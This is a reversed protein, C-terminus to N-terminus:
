EMSEIMAKIMLPPVSNGIITTALGTKVPLVYWDPFSQFRALCRPTMAVVRGKNLWARFPHKEQSAIITPVVEEEYKICLDGAYNLPKGDIIFARSDLSRHSSIVTPSPEESSSITLHSDQQVLFARYKGASHNETITPAPKEEPLLGSNEGNVPMLFARHVRGGGATKLTFCPDEKELITPCREGAADGEVLFAKIHGMSTTDVTFAPEVKECYKRGNSGPFASNVYISDLLNEPLRKLQWDAFKSEPLTPILDEIAEYWGIKRVSKTPQPMSGGNARIIFRQRTQPVSYESANFVGEEWWGYVDRLASRIIEISKTNRYERVNELTFQPAELTRIFHAVTEACSIDLENEGANTNAKSIRTCVPSCHFHYPKELKTPDVERVDARIIHNGLNLEYCDAIDSVYEVGWIPKYGLLAAGLEVGGGGSFCSAITKESM